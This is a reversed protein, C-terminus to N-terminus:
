RDHPAADVFGEEAFGGGVDGAGDGRARLVVVAEGVGGSGKVLVGQGDPADTLALATGSPHLQAALEAM